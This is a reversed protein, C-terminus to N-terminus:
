VVYYSCQSFYRAKLRELVKITVLQSAMCADLNVFVVRNGQPEAVIFARSRLRIHIGSATQGSNAYGMMNVDAAPGTIDYSGLGVLYNSASISKETNHVFVLLVLWFWAIVCPRPIVVRFFEM